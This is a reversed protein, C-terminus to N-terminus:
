LDMKGMRSAATTRVVDKLMNEEILASAQEVTTKNMPIFLDYLKPDWCEVSSFM